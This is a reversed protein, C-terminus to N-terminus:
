VTVLMFLVLLAYIITQTWMKEKEELTAGPSRYIRVTLYINWALLGSMLIVHIM